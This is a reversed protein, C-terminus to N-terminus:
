VTNETHERGGIQSWIHVPGCGPQSSLGEGLWCWPVKHVKLVERVTNPQKVKRTKQSSNIEKVATM